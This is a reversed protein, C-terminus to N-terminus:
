VVMEGGEGRLWRAFNYEILIAKRKSELDRKMLGVTEMLEDTLIVEDKGDLFNTKRMADVFFYAFEFNLGPFGYGALNDLSLELESLTVDGEIGLVKKSIELRDRSLGKLVDLEHMVDVLTRLEEVYLEWMDSSVGLQTNLFKLYIYKEKLDRGNWNLQEVQSDMDSSVRVGRSVIGARKNQTKELFDCEGILRDLHEIKLNMDKIFSYRNYVTQLMYEFGKYLVVNYIPFGFVTTVEPNVRNIHKILIQKIESIKSRRTYISELVMREIGTLARDKGELNVVNGIGLYKPNDRIKDVTEKLAERKEETSQPGFIARELNEKEDENGADHASMWRLCRQIAQTLVREDAIELRYFKNIDEELDFMKPPSYTVKMGDLREELDNLDRVLDEMLSVTSTSKFNRLIDDLDETGLFLSSVGTLGFFSGYKFQM